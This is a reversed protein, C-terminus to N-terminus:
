SGPSMADRRHVLLFFMFFFSYFFIGKNLDLINESVSAVILLIMFTAFLVDRKKWATVLGYLLVFLYVLLGQIGTKLMLSIYENHANFQNLYASFLKREFYKEKLLEMETGSGYGVIPSQRVLEMAAKWRIMRPETAEISQISPSLDRKLESAYREKLTDVHFITFSVLTLGMAAIGIFILKRKATFLFLPFVMLLILVMAFCVARSSLQLLGAMLVVACCGYLVRQLMAEAKLLRLIFVSASFAVYMSLYTAHMGIPEAFNHNMFSATFLISYPLHYYRITLLADAYLYIVTLTVTFGFIELLPWRYKKLDLGNLSLIAPFLLLALQITSDNWGQKKNFSYIICILSVFYLASVILVEKTLLLKLRERRLHILTHIILSILVLQSYFRDFPLAILFCVLHYYSITNTQTDPILLLRKM